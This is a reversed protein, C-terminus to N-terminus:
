AEDPGYPLPDIPSPTKCLFPARNPGSHYRYGQEGARLEILAGNTLVQMAAAGPTPCGLSSDRWTVFEARVTDISEPEVGLRAALDQRALEVLRKLGPGIAKAEGGPLPATVGAEGASRPVSELRPENDNNDGAVDPATEVAPDAGSQGNVCATLTCLAILPWPPLRANMPQFYCPLCRCVRFALM